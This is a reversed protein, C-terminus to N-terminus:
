PHTYGYSYGGCNVCKRDLSQLFKAIGSISANIFENRKVQWEDRKEAAWEAGHITLFNLRDSAEWEKLVEIGVSYLYPMNLHPLAACLIADFDCQITYNASIGCVKNSTQNCCIAGGNRYSHERAISGSYGIADTTITINNTKGIYFWPVTIETDAIVDVEKTETHSGDTLTLTITATTDFKLVVSELVFRQLNGLCTNLELEGAGCTQSSFKGIRGFDIAANPRLYNQLHIKVEEIMVRGSRIVIQEFFKAANQAKGYEIDAIRSLTMGELDELYLGSISPPKECHEWLSRVGIYNELCKM